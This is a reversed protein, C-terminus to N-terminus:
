IWTSTEMDRPQKSAYDRGYREMFEALTKDYHQMWKRQADRKLSIDLESNPHNTIYEHDPRCCAIYLGDEESKWRSNGGIVHHRELMTRRGCIYCQSPDSQLISKWERSDRHKRM